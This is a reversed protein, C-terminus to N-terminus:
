RRSGQVPAPYARVTSMNKERPDRWQSNRAKQCLVGLVQYVTSKGPNQRRKDALLEPQQSVSTEAAEVTVDGTICAAPSKARMLGPLEDSVPCPCLSAM